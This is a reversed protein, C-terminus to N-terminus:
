FLGLTSAYAALFLAAALAGPFLFRDGNVEVLLGVAKYGQQMMQM